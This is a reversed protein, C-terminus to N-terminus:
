YYSLSFVKKNNANEKRGRLENRLSMGVVYPTGKFLSAMVTLSKIWLDPNFYQDGFFGSGDSKDCCWDPKSIHNDLIVMVKNNGLSSVVALRLMLTDKSSAGSIVRMWLNYTM